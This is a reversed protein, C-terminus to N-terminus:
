SMAAQMSNWYNMTVDADITGFLQRLRVNIVALSQINSTPPGDLEYIRGSGTQIQRSATNVAIVATTVRCTFGNALFGALHTHGNVQCMRWDQILARPQDHVGPACRSNSLVILLPNM